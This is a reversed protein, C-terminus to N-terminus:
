EAAHSLPEDAGALFMLQSLEAAFPTGEFEGAAVRAWATRADTHIVRQALADAASLWEGPQREQDIFTTTPHAM